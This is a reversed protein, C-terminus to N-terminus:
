SNRTEKRPESQSQSQNQGQGESKSDKIQHQDDVPKADTEIENLGDKFGSIPRGLSKGLGEVRSPGFFLLAIFAIILWHWISLQGM